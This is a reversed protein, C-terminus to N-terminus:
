TGEGATAKATATAAARGVQAGHMGTDEV